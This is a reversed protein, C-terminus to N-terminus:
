EEAQQTEAAGGQGGALGRIHEEAAAIAEERGDGAANPRGPDSCFTFTCVARTRTGVLVCSCVRGDRCYFICIGPSVPGGTSSPICDELRCLVGDIYRGSPCPVGISECRHVPNRYEQRQLIIDSKRSVRVADRSSEGSGDQQLVHTLEHALLRKGFETEPHYKDHNFVVHHGVTYASALIYEASGAAKTDTHVRVRSFDHGFRSEMFGRTASDLPQGPSRLAEHVIPPAEAGGIDNARFTKRQLHGRGGYGEQCKPCGGGCPCARQPGPEPMRMVLDATRDAEQEYVDQPHNVLLKPQIRPSTKARSPIRSLDQTFQNQKQAFARM